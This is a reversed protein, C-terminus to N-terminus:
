EGMVQFALKRTRPGDFDVLGLRQWQGLMLQGDRVLLTVSPGGVLFAKLHADANRDCKYDDDCRNATRLPSNHLYDKVKPVFDRLHNNIDGVLMPEHLENVSLVCTTHLVQATFVGNKVNNERVFAQAKETVDEMHFYDYPQKFKALKADLNVLNNETTKITVEKFHIM